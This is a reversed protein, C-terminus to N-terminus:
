PLIFRVSRATSSNKVTLVYQAGPLQAVAEGFSMRHKGANLRGSFLQKVQQGQANFLLVNIQGATKMDIEYM